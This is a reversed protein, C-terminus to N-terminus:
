VTQGAELQDVRGGKPILSSLLTGGLVVAAFLLLANRYSSDVYFSTGQLVNEHQAVLVFSVQIVIAVIVGQILNQAGNGLAQEEPAVSEIIMLPILAVVIGTGVSGVLSIFMMQAVSHHFLAILSIGVAMLVGSIALLRRSDVRRVLVGTWVAMLVIVVSSPAGVWATKSASWGLGDSVHPISPMLELLSLVTGQAYLGGVVLTTFVLTTWVRRRGLIALPFIPHAVKGEVWLFLLVAIVGGIVFALTRGNTWGWHSGNGIGYIVSTLGGGLLIGGIWDIRTRPERVPSEPVFFLTLLSVASAIVMFWLVGRFGYSDLLWGSLFSGGLALLGIGGALVGTAPGVLRSPFVDRTLAYVLAAAPVYTGAIGRGILLITYDTSCASILDGVLGLTTVVILARRKGFMGAAKVTFPTTFVGILSGVQTFWVIQTTHYHVAVQAQANSGLVSVLGNLEATWLLAILILAFRTGFRSRGAPQAARPSKLTM